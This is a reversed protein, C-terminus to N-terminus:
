MLRAQLITCMEICGNANFKIKHGYKNYDVIPQQLSTFNLHCRHCHVIEKDLSYFLIQVDHEGHTRHSFRETVTETLKRREDVAAGDVVELHM